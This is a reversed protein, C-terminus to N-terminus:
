DKTSLGQLLSRAPNAAVHMVTDYNIQDNMDISIDIANLSPELAVIGSDFVQVDGGDISLELVMEQAPNKGTRKRYVGEGTIVFFQTGGGAVWIVDDIAFVDFGEPDRGVPTAEFSGFFVPYLIVPGACGFPPAPFCGTVFSADAGLAFTMGKGRPSLDPNASVPAGASVFLALTAVAAFAHRVISKTHKTSM